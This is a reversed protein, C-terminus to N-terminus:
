IINYKNLAECVLIAKDKDNVFSIDSVNGYGIDDQSIHYEISTTGCHEIYINWNDNDTIKEM